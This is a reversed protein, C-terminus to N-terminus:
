QGPSRLPGIKLEGCHASIRLEVERGHLQVDLPVGFSHAFRLARANDAQITALLLSIGYHSLRSALTTAMLTGIGRGQWGDAVVLGIEGIHPVPSRAVDAVAVIRHQVAAVLVLRDAHRGATWADLLWHPPSPFRSSFRRYITEPGLTRLFMALAVRDSHDTARIELDDRGATRDIRDISGVPRGAVTLFRQHSRDDRLRDLVTLDLNRHALSRRGIPDFLRQGAVPHPHAIGAVGASPNERFSASTAWDSIAVFSGFEYARGIAMHHWITRAPTPPRLRSVSFSPVAILDTQLESEHVLASHWFDACLLVLVRRGGIEVVGRRTGPDVDAEADVGYPHAKDYDVVIEGDPAAVAGSNLTRGHRTHHHSGGVLWAGLSRAMDRIRRLYRARDMMAAVLEPLIVLDGPEIPTASREILRAITDLNHDGDPTWARPQVIVVGVGGVPAPTTM